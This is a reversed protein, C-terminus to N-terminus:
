EIRQGQINYQQEGRIIIIQGNKMVKRVNNEPQAEVMPISTAENDQFVVRARVPLPSTSEFYARLGVKAMNYTGANYLGGGSLYYQNSQDLTGGADLIPQMTIASITVPKPTTNITVGEITFGDEADYGSTATVLIYPKGATISTVPAFQLHVETANYEVVNYFEYVKANGFFTSIQAANMDFPLTLTLTKNAAFNRKVTATVKEGEYDELATTNDANEDITVAIEITTNFTYITADAILTITLNLGDVKVATAAATAEQPTTINLTELVQAAALGNTIDLVKVGAVKGSADAYPAVMFCLNGITFYTAGNYKKGLNESLTTGETVQQNFTLPDTIEFPEVLGGDLIWNATAFPSANLEYSAGLIDTTQADGKTFHYHESDNVAPDTYVGGIVNYVSYRFKVGTATVGTTFLTGNTSTGKYTMTHGQISRYWNSSMKSKFWITPNDALNNWIYFNMEGRKYGADVQADGAQCVIKNCAILKGDDTVAIDSISLLDGANDPDCAVVGDLSIAAVNDDTVNYIHPTGDNEHTLVVTSEGIQIARKVVGVIEVPQAPVQFTYKEAAPTIAQGSYPMRYAVFKEKTYGIAYLNDAYDWAFDNSNRGVTTLKLGLEHTLVPVGAADKTVTYINLATNSAIAVKTFDKNFRFAGNEIISYLGKYKENGNKDFYVLGPQSNTAENRNSIYWVGGDKDYQVQSSTPAIFYCQGTSLNEHPFAKSPATNWSTETGLNYESIRFGRQGFGFAQTNASLMLLQLNEGSGRVDFGANPGAVFTSGNVLDKNADQTLGQFIPTWQNMDKPNVEWLVDGNTNLSTVFIRGDDSIRVRRPAYAKDTSDTRKDTFTIGGNYKGTYNFAADFAFIGAGFDKGLYNKSTKGKVENLAETTLILGFTENEPNNDIDIASPHYVDYNTNYEEVKTVSTGNVVMKWTLDTEAPLGETSITITHSGKTLGTCNVTKVPTNGNMIVVQASNAKSNLSYNVKLNWESDLESSLNYAFPNLQDTKTPEYGPYITFNYEKQCPTSIMGSYPMAFAIIKEGSNGVVYLNEGYDVAFENLNRGIHNAKVSWKETLVLNGSADKSITYVGFNGTNADTRAKGKILMGNHLLIGDGGYFESSESYYDRNGNKDFHVLNPQNASGARSAGFWYGGEGDYIINVNTYMYGYKGNFYTIQKPAVANDWKTAEGLAYEDLRFLSQTYSNSFATGSASYLLLKLDKGSGQVDMSLNMGALFQGDSTTFANGKMTSSTKEQGRALVDTWTNLDKSLEWVFKGNLDCSSVFIRGDESIKVRWPQYGYSAWQRTFDLGGNRVKGDTSFDPNFVYLGAGQGSSLYGTAPVAQMGEVAIIRGFNDSTPDKDIALGHPCYLSYYTSVQTPVPKSTGKVEVKWKLERNMHLDECSITETYSGRTIGSCSVRKMEMNVDMIVIDVATANANLTYNVTLKKTASNFTSSLNYAYPNLESAKAMQATSNITFEYQSSCPTAVKGSYPLAYALMKEGNNGVVYLNEAYDVAFANHNRGLGPSAVSWKETLTTKGNADKSITFIGFNGNTSNTRLKGKILMGKHVLVGGGGYHTNTENRYDEVGEANIHVLNPQGANGGRSGGFWYGGEGDYIFDVDTHVVGFKGGNIINKPTGTFTTATGLKYEDLRYGSQNYAIGKNNTSYLLLTLDDGSGKVDMAVNLGAFFAGDKKITYDTADNTGSIVPTWTNLDKSVEWVVVGNIDCSSVFIRGDESIEVQYPQYGNTALIRTFDKGGSYRTKDTTFDPNFVYLGAGKGGSVYTTSSKSAVAHMSESVLIRGFYESEPNKDIALGHPCYFGYTTGEITPTTVSNGNVEIKWSLKKGLPMDPKDLNVTATHAGKTIGSLDQSLIVNDGDLLVFTASIADNNLKYNITLATQDVNLQSKLDYAFPNLAFSLTSFLMAVLFLTLKKM